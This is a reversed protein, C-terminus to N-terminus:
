KLRILEKRGDKQHIVCAQNHLPMGECYLIKKGTYIQQHFIVATWSEDEKVFKWASVLEDPLQGRGPQLVAAPRADIEAGFFLETQILRDQMTGRSVLQAHELLENYRLSCPGTEIKESLGSHRVHLVAQGNKLLWGAAEATLKVEPDLQIRSVVEHEGEAIIEDTIMWCDPHILIMKRIQTMQPTECLVAGEIYTCSGADRLQNALPTLFRDYTWSSDPVSAPRDDLIVTNHAEMGKLQVRVPHDERYTYRGPDIVFPRGQYVLSYHLNDSHGHGSGLEGNTFMTWSASRSFDSRRVIMGCDRDQFLVTRPREPALADLKQQAEWGWQFLLDEDLRDSGMARLERDAFLVAGKNMIDEACVRDTDGFTEIQHDPMMMHMLASTMQHAKERLSHSLALSVFQDYYLVKLVNNLVEVHYMTSQEWLLGDASVQIQMQTELEELAWRYIEDTKPDKGTLAKCLIIGCTQISGWNSLTYKEIYNAKLYVIQAEISDLILTLEEESLKDATELLMTCELMNVIRIGTDLTRTSRSYEILPHKAIWDLLFDRAQDLYRPDGSILAAKALSSWYDMRNLMFTWEEDDNFVQNWDMVEMTHPTLCREMDWPHDFVFTHRCLENGRLLLLDRQPDQQLQVAVQKLDKREVIDHWLKKIEERNM